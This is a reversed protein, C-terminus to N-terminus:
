VGKLPARLNRGFTLFVAGLSIVLSLWQAVTLPGFIWPSDWRFFELFFRAAAYSFLYLVFLYGSNYVKPKSMKEVTLLIVFILLNTVIEWYAFPLNEGNFINGIRGLAQALAIAPAACDLYNLIRTKFNSFQFNAFLLFGLIGGALAGYIALGGRWVQAALILNQSYYDWYNIVHYIRAGLIGFVLVWPLSDWVFSASLGRKSARFATLWYAAFIAFALTPGYLNLSM